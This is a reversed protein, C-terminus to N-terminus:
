ALSAMGILNFQEPTLGAQRLGAEAEAKLESPVALNLAAREETEKDEFNGLVRFQELTQEDSFDPGSRVLGIILKNGLGRALLDPQQGDLPEPDPLLPTDLAHTITIDDGPNRTLWGRLRGVGELRRQETIDM